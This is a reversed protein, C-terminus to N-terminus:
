PTRSCQGPFRLWASTLTGVWVDILSLGQVDPNHRGNEQTTLRLQLDAPAVFPEQRLTAGLRFNKAPVAVSYSADAPLAILWRDLRGGVVAVSLDVYSLNTDAMGARRVTLELNGPLYKRDNGLIVGIVAATPVTSVNQMTFRFTLESAQTCELALRLPDAGTQAAAPVALGAYLALSIGYVWSKM